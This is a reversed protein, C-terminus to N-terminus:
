LHFVSAISVGSVIFEKLNIRLLKLSNTIHYEVAKESISLNAAIEKISLHNFRSMKFIDRTKQPLLELAKELANYLENYKVTAETETCHTPLTQRVHQQYNEQVLTTEIYNVVKNKISTLLYQQPHEISLVQRKEWLNLFINQVLEKSTEKCGLRMYAANFLQKWYRGYMEKFATEDDTKLLKILIEDAILSYPM